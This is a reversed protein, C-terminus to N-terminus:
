NNCRLAEFSGAIWSKADDKFCLTIKGKVTKENIETIVLACNWPVNVNKAGNNLTYHYDATYGEINKSFNEKLFDGKIFDSNTHTLRFADDNEIFGCNQGPMKDSFNFVNDGSGRWKEFNIYEIKIEKGNMVGKIPFDPIKDLSVNESWAFDNIKNPEEKKIQQNKGCSIFFIVIIICFLRNFISIV